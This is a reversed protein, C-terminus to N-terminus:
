QFLLFLRKQNIQLPYRLVLLNLFHIQPSDQFADLFIQGKFNHLLNNLIESCFNIESLIGDFSIEVM